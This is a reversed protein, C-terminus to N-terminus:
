ILRDLVYNHIRHTIQERFSYRGSQVFRSQFGRQSSECAAIDEHNVRDWRSYNAQAAEEFDARDLSSKPFCIGWTVTTRQPAEPLAILYAMSTPNPAIAFNPYILFLTAEQIQAETLSEIIPLPSQGSMTRTASLVGTATM